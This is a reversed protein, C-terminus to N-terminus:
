ESLSPNRTRGSFKKLAKNLALALYSGAICKLVDGFIFPVVAASLAAIINMKQTICMFATGFAYLVPMGVLITVLLYRVISEKKGKLLSILPASILFGIIFGGTPGLLRGIGATGGSFVPLGCIGLLIYVGVAAASQAPTLILAILNIIVTQMTIPATSFPIPFSLYSSVCLLAICISIKTLTQINTQKM